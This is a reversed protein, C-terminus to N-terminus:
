QNLEIYRPLVYIGSENQIIKGYVIIKNGTKFSDLTYIGDKELMLYISDGFYSPISDNKTEEHMVGCGICKYELNYKNTIEEVLMGQVDSSRYMYKGTIFGYIKVYKGVPATGYFFDDYYYEECMTTYEELTLSTDNLETTTEEIVSTTEPEPIENDTTTEVDLDTNEEDKTELSSSSEDGSLLVGAMLFMCGNLNTTVLVGISLVILIKKM